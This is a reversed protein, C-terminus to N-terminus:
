REGPASLIRCTARISNGEVLVSVITARKAYSLKKLATIHSSRELM